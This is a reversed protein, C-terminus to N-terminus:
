RARRQQQPQRQQDNTVTIRGMAWFTSAHAFTEELKDFHAEIVPLMKYIANDGM